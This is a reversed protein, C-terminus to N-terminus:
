ARLLRSTLSGDDHLELIRAGTIARGDLHMEDGEHTIGMVTSPCGLVPLGRPGALEVADHLHGAVVARVQPRAALGELLAGAGELQFAAGTSRSLPPHHVAVVTPRDDLADLRDLAAPVDVRGFTEGPVVTDVAVVRWGDLEALDHAGFAAAVADARDHNGALALMPLGLEAVAHALRLTAELDGENTLDGTLLVLDAVEGSAIWADLVIALREDADRGFVGEGPLPALHTDSLQLVTAGVPSM